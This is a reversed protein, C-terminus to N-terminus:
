LVQRLFIRKILYLLIVSSRVNMKFAYLPHSINVANYDRAQIYTLASVHKITGFHRLPQLKIFQLSM